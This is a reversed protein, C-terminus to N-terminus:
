TAQGPRRGELVTSALRCAGTGGQRKSAGCGGEAKGNHECLRSAGSRFRYKGNNESPDAATPYFDENNLYDKGAITTEYVFIEPLRSYRDAFYYRGRGEEAIYQLLNTDAAQGVAITSITIGDERAQRLLNSYGDTEAQGDTLLIIHKLKSDTDALKTCAM